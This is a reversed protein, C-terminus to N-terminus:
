FHPRFGRNKWGSIVPYARSSSPTGILCMHRHHRLFRAMAVFLRHPANSYSPQSPNAQDTKSELMGMKTAVLTLNAVTAAMLLQFLTKARGAYRAKRIGLQMLRALRHESVQRRRSCEQFAKSKQFARAQQLLAEQPHLTVTRGKGQGGSVCCARLGCNSCTAGDFVFAKVQHKIGQRDTRTVVHRLKQTVQGAPCTCTGSELDIVFDEKPFCAKQPRKPVRAILKRGAEAFVQRTIGDGYATDGITEQAEMGTNQESQEVLELAGESDPANGPLVEVATILQSDTDVAIAAKHGNFRKHRSKHGHRMEPDHVSLIRDRSVGQKLAAGDGKYEIDQMLLQGLLGGAQALRKRTDSGEMQRAQSTRSMELIGEADAVIRKLLGRREGDDDWDIGAEGKISSGFYDELGHEKAWTEAKIGEIAALARVVQVIGDALLNYTDKVAGQGLVYSTDLAAKMRRGKLYGTERAFSLSRKFIDGMAEHILLQARFLQLTSKAFPKEDIEIGLAVKWRIDFTARQRAEEDSVRDHTQLLLATALLSPPVSERGNDPCYLRAFEEDKFLQGRMAALFGYFSGRGVHGLYLNDAEFLGKQALRKGLM